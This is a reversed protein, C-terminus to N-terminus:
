APRTAPTSSLMAPTTWVEEIWAAYGLACPWENGPQAWEITINREDLDAKLRHCAKQLLLSMDLVGLDFENLTRVEALLLLEDIITSM